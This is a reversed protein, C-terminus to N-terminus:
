AMSVKLKLYLTALMLDAESVTAEKPVNALKKKLTLANGLARKFMVKPSILKTYEEYCQMTKCGSRSCRGFPPMQPEICAKCQLCVRYVELHMMAIIRADYLEELREENGDLQIM